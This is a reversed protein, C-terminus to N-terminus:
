IGVAARATAMDTPSARSYATADPGYARLEVAIVAGTADDIDEVMRLTHVAGVSRFVHSLASAPHDFQRREEARSRTVVLVHHTTPNAFDVVKGPDDLLTVLDEAERALHAAQIQFAVAGQRRAAALDRAIDLASRPSPATIDAILQQAAVDLPRSRVLLELTGSTGAKPL